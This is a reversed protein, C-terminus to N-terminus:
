EIHLKRGPPCSHVQNPVLTKSHLSWPTLNTLGNQKVARNGIALIELLGRSPNLYISTLQNLTLALLFLEIGFM